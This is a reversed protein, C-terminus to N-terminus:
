GGYVKELKRLMLTKVGNFDSVQCTARLPRGIGIVKKAMKYQDPWVTLETEAGATDEVLYKMMMQGIYKGTKIKFERLFAKAIVEVVVQQRDPLMRLRSIATVNYGTFFGPFMDNISGSVLEGLVEQEHRLMEQKSWEQGPISAPFDELAMEESQYGDKKLSKKLFVNMKDRVKKGEDHVGKRSLHFSDFCGAKALVELKTKNVIRANVRFLFDKFSSFPQNEILQELAKVGMGKVAALGMVITQEDLVEYGASSKNIDPPVIKIGLRRCEAKAMNIEDERNLGGKSTKVKLYAALFAAPYYCKLYATIYGNISYFVAHSNASVVGGDLIYNHNKDDIEVYYTDHLGLNEVTQITTYNEEAQKRYLTTRPHWDQEGSFFRELRIRKRPLFMMPKEYFYEYIKKVDNKARFWLSYSNGSKLVGVDFLGHINSHLHDKIIKLMNYPGRFGLNVRPGKYNHVCVSGDGDFYGLLFHKFLHDPINHLNIPETNKNRPIGLKQLNHALEMSNVTAIMTRSNDRYRSRLQWNEIGLFEYLKVLHKFDHTSIEVGLKTKSVSGDAAIFGFWYAAVENDIKDFMFKPKTYSNYSKQVTKYLSGYGNKNKIWDVNNVPVKKIPLAKSVIESLEKYGFPTLFKHNPTVNVIGGDEFVIKWVEMKRDTKGIEKIKTVINKETDKNLSLVEDGKKLQRLSKWGSETLLFNLSKLCKNFGYGSFKEVVKDWVEKSAEYDTGHKKMMGEIFDVELQLALKPDKGKLKTLKRLGDAKNLDWGAVDKAVDMLQEEMICLGYTHAVSRKLSPHLYEVKKVGFRRDIYEQREHKSSPRGLANIAAIDLINNPRIKKCLSVMMSSKGLQFVCKTHGQQIMKYTEKDDLPINEMHKPANKIGLRRVNKLAEDIIDLTSIALFDMKVLGNAECRNKEYQVAITGNKDIRLPAFEVIPVDSVVMGAAHTSYEKPMGIIRTAHEILEPALEAFERLKPSAELSKVISRENEPILNKITEAVRVSNKYREDDTNGKILNPLVSRMSRILDPIVTKPTYTNINSVQACHAHGYKNRVYEQVADRGVSTFDTDIDPLDTKYANQFREFLLNYEIPDVGHIGLLYAVMCGGVSNHAAFNQTIYSHDENVKIDYVKDHGAVETIQKVKTFYGNDQTFRATKNTELGTFHLAYSKQHNVIKGNYLSTKPQTIVVSSPIKLYLLAEKIELVLALSVTRIIEVGQKTTHGDAHKYGLMLALLNEKSLNRFNCLHKTFSSNQYNKFISKFLNVLIKDFIQIQVANEKKNYVESKFGLNSFYSTIRKIGYIDKKHLSFGIYYSNGHESIFGDGIWRGLVYFWDKDQLIFREYTRKEVNKRNKWDDFSVEGLYTVIKEISHPSAKTKGNKINSVTKIQLGTHQSVQIISYKNSLKINKSINTNSVKYRIRSNQTFDALDIPATPRIERTPWPMFLLNGLKLEDARIWEPDENVNRTGFLEHNKTFVLDNFQFDTKVRLLHEEPLCNYEFTNSVSSIRGTHTYVEDGINIKDINVFGNSTLIKTEKITCGRGVGVLIGHEKAWKIFDATVLMYSSFNNGELIKLEKKVREWREKKKDPEMHSFKEKFGQIVKYRMYKMDLSMKEPMKVTKCWKIFVDADPEERPNFIPLHNGITEMYDPPDCQNSIDVTSRLALDAVTSGHHKEIFRYVEDGGKFYFEDSRDIRYGYREPDDVRKKANIAMLIDHTKDWKSTMYHTDVGVVISIGLKQGLNILQKNLFVQDIYDDKLAHPQIEMYFRDGFIKQLRQAIETARDYDGNYIPEALIGGSCATTVILGESYKELVDWSIRPFVRGMSVVHHQFGIYNLKLLNKYGVENQALVIMHKRKETKKRKIKANPDIPLYDYSHVFYIECGPIFKVGTRKYAKFADYHCALTGHDTIALSKQGMEKAANFLDDVDALSDLMSGLNSHCHINVFERFM